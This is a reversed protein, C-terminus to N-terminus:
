LFYCYHGEIPRRKPLALRSPNMPADDNEPNERELEIHGDAVGLNAPLAQKAGDNRKEPAVGLGASKHMTAEVAPSTKEEGASKRRAKLTGNAQLPSTECPAM